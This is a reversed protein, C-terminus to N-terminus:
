FESIQIYVQNLKGSTKTGAWNRSIQICWDANWTKSIRSHFTVATRCKKKEGSYVWEIKVGQSFGDATSWYQTWQLSPVPNVPAITSPNTKISGNRNESPCYFLVSLVSENVANKKGSQFSVVFQRTTHASTLMLDALVLDNLKKLPLIVQKM